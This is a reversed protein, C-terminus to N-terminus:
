IIKFKTSARCCNIQIKGESYSGYRAALVYYRDYDLKRLKATMFRRYIVAFDDEYSMTDRDKSVIWIHRNKRAEKLKQAKQLLTGHHLYSHDRDESSHYNNKISFEEWKANLRVIDARHLDMDADCLCRVAFRTAPLPINARVQIDPVVLVCQEGLRIREDRLISEFKALEKLEAEEVLVFKRDVHKAQPRLRVPSESASCGKSSSRMSHEMHSHNSRSPSNMSHRTRSHTSKSRLSQLMTSDGKLSNESCFTHKSRETRTTYISNEAILLTSDRNCDRIDDLFLESLSTTSQTPPLFLANSELRRFTRRVAM